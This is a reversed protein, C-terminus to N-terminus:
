RVHSVCTALEAWNWVATLLQGHLEVASHSRTWVALYCFIRKRCKCSRRAISTTAFGSGHFDCNSRLGENVQPGCSASYPGAARSVVRAEPTGRRANRHGIRVNALGISTLVDRASTGRVRVARAGKAINASLEGPRGSKHIDQMHGVGRRGSWLSDQPASSGRGCPRSSREREGHM